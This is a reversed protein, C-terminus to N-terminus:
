WHIETGQPFSSDFVLEHMDLLLKLDKIIRSYLNDADTKETTNLGLWGSGCSNKVTQLALNAINIVNKWEILGPVAPLFPYSAFGISCTVNIKKGTNIEFKYKEVEQRLRAALNKAQAQPTFRSVILFKENEWKILIDSARCIERLLFALQKLIIDKEFLGYKECLKEISGIELILFNLDGPISAHLKQNQKLLEYDRQVKAIDQEIFMELYHRNKLGTLGDTFGHKELNQCYVFENVGDKVHQQLESIKIPKVLYKYVGFKNLGDLILEMEPFGTLIIRKTKPIIKILQEFLELGTLRPMRQDSIIVSITEPQAMKQIKDLAERGDHFSIVNYDRSFLTALENLQDTEDDVIMITDKKQPNKNDELRKKMKEKDIGFNKM